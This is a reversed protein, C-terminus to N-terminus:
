QTNRSMPGTTERVPATAGPAVLDIDRHSALLGEILPPVGVLDVGERRLRHLLRLGSPDAFELRELNLRKADEAPLAAIVCRLEDVWPGILKGDVELAAVTRYGSHTIRLVNHGRLQM